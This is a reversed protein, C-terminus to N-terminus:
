PSPRYGSRARLSDALRPRIDDATGPKGDPGVAFLDYTRGDPAVRYQYFRPIVSSGSQDVINVLHLSLMATQQLVPLSPPYAGYRDHYAEIREVLSALDRQTTALKEQSTASDARAMAAPFHRRTYQYFAAGGGVHLLLGAAGIAVAWFARPRDSVLGWTIAAVGLFVGLLPVFSFCAFVLLPWARKGPSRAAAPSHTDM